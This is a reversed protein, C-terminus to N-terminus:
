DRGEELRDFRHAEVDPEDTEGEADQSDLRDLGHAEVESEDVTEIPQDHDAM